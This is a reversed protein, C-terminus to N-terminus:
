NMTSYGKAKTFGVSIAVVLAPLGLSPGCPSPTPGGGDLVRGLRWRGGAERAPPLTELSTINFGGFLPHCQAHSFPCSASLFSSGCFWPCPQWTLLSFM